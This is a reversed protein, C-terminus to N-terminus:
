IHKYLDFRVINGRQTCTYVGIQPKRIGGVFTYLTDQISAVEIERENVTM